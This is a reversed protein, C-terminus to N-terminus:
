RGCRVLRLGSGYRVTEVRKGSPVHRTRRRCRCKGTRRAVGPHDGPHPDGPMTRRSADPRRLSARGARARGARRQSRAVRDTATCRAPRCRCSWSARRGRPRARDRRSRRGVRDPRDGEVLPRRDLHGLPQIRGDRREPDRGARDADPGEMRQPALDQAVGADGDLRHGIPRWGPRPRVTPPRPRDRKPEVGDDRPELDLEADRGGVDGGIGLRTRQRTREDGVLRPRPM